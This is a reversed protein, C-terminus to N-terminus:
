FPAKKVTIKIDKKEGNQSVEAYYVGPNASSAAKVTFSSMRNQSVYVGKGTYAPKMRAVWATGKVTITKRPAFAAANSGGVYLTVNDTSVTITAFTTVTMTLVFVLVLAVIRSKRILSHKNM